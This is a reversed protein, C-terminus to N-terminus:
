DLDHDVDVTVADSHPRFTAAVISQTTAGTPDTPGQFAGLGTAAAAPNV